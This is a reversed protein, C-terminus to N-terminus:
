ELMSPHLRNLTEKLSPHNPSGNLAEQWVAVAEDYKEQAWLAEGYHAAIEADPLLGWAKNLLSEAKVFNGNLFYGWGLSDIVAPNDPDLRYASSILDIAESYQQSRVLLTYGLANLYNANNPEKKLLFRLEKETEHWNGLSDELLAKKYRVDNMDSSQNLIIKALELALQPEEKDEHYQMVNLITETNQRQEFRTAVFDNIEREKKLDYLWIIIQETATTFLQGNVHKLKEIATNKKDLDAYANAELFYFRDTFGSAQYDISTLAKLADAPRKHQILLSIYHISLQAKYLAPLTANHYHDKASKFNKDNMEFDILSSILTYEEPYLALGQKLTQIAEQLEGDQKQTLGLIFYIDSPLPAKNNKNESLLTQAAEKASKFDGQLYVTHILASRIETQSQLDQPLLHIAENIIALYKPTTAFSNITRNLFDFPISEEYARVITNAVQDKNGQIAFTRFRISYSNTAKKDLSLWIDTSQIILAPDNLSLAILTAKEALTSNQESIALALYFEVAQKKEGRALSFEAILASQIPTKHLDIEVPKLRTSAQNQPTFVSCGSLSLILLAFGFTSKLNYVPPFFRNKQAKILSTYHTTKLSIPFPM